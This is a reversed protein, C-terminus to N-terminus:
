VSQAPWAAASKRHPTKAWHFPKRLIAYLAHWAALSILLWYFPLGSAVRFLGREGRAARRGLLLFALWSLVVCAVDLALLVKEMPGLGGLMLLKYTMAAIFAPMFLYALSSGCIGLLLIHAVALSAPSLQRFLAGPRRWHVMVTQMWGKFWRSRQLFWPKLRDPADEGTALTITRIHFGRRCIRLALDADETVNYPDWGGLQRLIGTRFHNSTGGLPFCTGRTSLAPLLGEFLAAYEFAFMRTLWNAPGNVIRLPAQVCALRPGGREFEQWAECLQQPHPLDEADYVAVLEGCIAPLAYALAKPKTRPGIAPVLIREFNPPLRIRDLAALTEADDEECVLKIELRSRPWQLRDLAAVLQAAVEEERYLAVLISYTPVFGCDPPLPSEPKAPKRLAAGLRLAACCLFFLVALMHLAVITEGPAIAAVALLATFGAGALFGQLGDAVRSASLEPHRFALARTARAALLPRARALLAQRLARPDVLALRTAIGPFRQLYRALGDRDFRAPSILVETTLAGAQYRVVGPGDPASLAAMVDRNRLVLREPDVAERFRLGLQGALHRFYGISDIEADALLEVHFTTGHWAARREIECRKEETLDDPWRQGNRDAM